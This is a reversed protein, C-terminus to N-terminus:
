QIGPMALLVVLVLCCMQPAQSQLIHSSSELISIDKQILSWSLPRHSYSLANLAIIPITQYIKNILCLLISQRIEFKQM